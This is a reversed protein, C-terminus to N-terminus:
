KEVTSIQYQIVDYMCPDRRDGGILKIGNGSFLESAVYYIVGM